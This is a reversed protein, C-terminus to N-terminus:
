LSGKFNATQASGMFNFLVSDCQVARCYETCTIERSPHMLLSLKEKERGSFEIMRPCPVVFNCQNTDFILLYLCYHWVTPFAFESFGEWNNLNQPTALYLLYFWCISVRAGDRGTAGTDGRLGPAGQFVCHSFNYQYHVCYNRHFFGQATQQTDTGWKSM